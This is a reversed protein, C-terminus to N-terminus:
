FMALFIPGLWIAWIISFIGLVLGTIAMGKGKDIGATAIGVIGLVTSAIGLWLPLILLSILGFIMALLGCVNLKM